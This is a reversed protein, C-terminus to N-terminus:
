DAEVQEVWTPNVAYADLFAVQWSQREAQPVGFAESLRVAYDIREAVDGLRVGHRRHSCGIEAGTQTM